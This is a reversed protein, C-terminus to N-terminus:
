QSVWRWNGTPTQAQPASFRPSSRILVTLILGPLLLRFLLKIGLDFPLKM